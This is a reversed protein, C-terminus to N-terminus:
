REALSVLVNFHGVLIDKTVSLSRSQHLEFCQHSISVLLQLLPTKWNKRSWNHRLIDVFETFTLKELIWVFNVWFGDFHCFLKRHGPSVTDDLPWGASGWLAQSLWRSTLSVWWNKSCSEQQESMVVNWLWGNSFTNCFSQLFYSEVGWLGLQTEGFPHRCSAQCILRSTALRLWIIQGCLLHNVTSPTQKSLERTCHCRKSWLHRSPSDSSLLCASCLM